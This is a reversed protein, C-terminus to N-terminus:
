PKPGAPTPRRPGSRLPAARPSALLGDEVRSVMSSSVRARAALDTQRLGQRRRESRVWQGVRVDEMGSLM